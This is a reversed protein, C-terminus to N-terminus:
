HTAAPGPGDGAAVGAGPPADIAHIQGPTLRSQIADITAGVEARTREIDTKLQDARRTDGHPTM